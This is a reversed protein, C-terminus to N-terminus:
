PQDLPALVIYVGGDPKDREELVPLGSNRVVDAFEPPANVYFQVFIKGGPQLLGALRRVLGAVKDVALYYLVERLIIGDYREDTDYTLIDGTEFSTDPRGLARAREIATVSIDVGHYHRYRGPTLPLNASTGCGLDLIRANPAYEEVLTLVQAGGDALADLYNWKGLRYQASWMVGNLRPSSRVLAKVPAALRSLRRRPPASPTKM